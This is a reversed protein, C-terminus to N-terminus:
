PPALSYVSGDPRVMKFSFYEFGTLSVMGNPQLFFSANSPIFGYVYLETELNKFEAYLTDLDWTNLQRVRSCNLPATLVKYSPKSLISQCLFHIRNTTIPDHPM